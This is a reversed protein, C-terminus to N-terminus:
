FLAEARFPFSLLISPPLLVHCIRFFKQLFRNADPLQMRSLSKLIYPLNRFVRRSYDFEQNFEVLFVARRGLLENFRRRDPMECRPM